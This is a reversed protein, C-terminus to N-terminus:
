ESTSLSMESLLVASVRQLLLRTVWVGKWGVGGSM